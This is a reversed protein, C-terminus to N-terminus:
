FMAISTIVKARADAGRVRRFSDEGFFDVVRLFPEAPQSLNSAPDFGILDAGTGDFTRLLPGDNCGIDVVIDGPTLCVFQRARRVIEASADRMTQNVGSMYWHNDYILQKPFSHRLQVLGCANEDLAPDCRILDLPVKRLPLEAPSDDRRFASALVQNGLSIIPTLARSGCIRCTTRQSVQM